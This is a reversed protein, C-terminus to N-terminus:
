NLEKQYYLIMNHITRWEDAFQCFSDKLLIKADISKRMRSKIEFIKAEDNYRLLNLKENEIRESLFPILTDFQLVLKHSVNILEEFDENNESKEAFAGQIQFLCLMAMDESVLNLVEAMKKIEKDFDKFAFAFDKLYNKYLRLNNSRSKKLAHLKNMAARALIEKNEEAKKFNINQENMLSSHNKLRKKVEEITMKGISILVKTSLDKLGIEIEDNHTQANSVYDSPETSDIFRLLRGRIEALHFKEITYDIVGAISKEDLNKHEAVLLILTNYKTSQKNFKDLLQQFVNSLGEDRLSEKFKNKLEQAQM